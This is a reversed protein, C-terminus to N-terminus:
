WYMLFIASWWLFKPAEPFCFHEWNEPNTRSWGLHDSIGVINHKWLDAFGPVSSFWAKYLSILKEPDQKRGLLQPSLSLGKPGMHSITWINVRCGDKPLQWFCFYNNHLPWEFLELTAGVILGYKINFFENRPVGPVGSTCLHQVFHEFPKLM